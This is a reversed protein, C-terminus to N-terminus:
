PLAKHFRHNPCFSKVRNPAISEGEGRETKDM